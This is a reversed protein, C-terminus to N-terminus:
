AGIWISGEEPSLFYCLNSSSISVFHNAGELCVFEVDRAIRGENKEETLEEDLLYTGWIIEWISRNCWVLRVEVAGWEEKGSGMPSYLVSDKLSGWVNHTACARVMLNDSGGVRAPCARTNLDAREGGPKPGHLELASPRVTWLDGHTFYNALFADFLAPRDTLPVSEDTMPHYWDPPRPYGFLLCLSDYLIIRWLFRNLLTHDTKALLSLVSIGGLSWGVLIIGGSNEEPMSAIVTERCVFDLLFDYVDQGHESMLEMAQALVEPTTPLEALRVLKELEKPSHPLSGPYDCRNVVIIRVNFAQAFPLLRKFVGAQWGLGPVIVLTTFTTSGAPVGSDIAAQLHPVPRYPPSGSAGHTSTQPSSM